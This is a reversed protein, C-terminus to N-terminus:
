PALYGAIQLTTTNTIVGLVCLDKDAPVVAIPVTSDMVLAASANGPAALRAVTATSPLISTTTTACNASGGSRVSNGFRLIFQGGTATTSQAVVDTIYRRLTNDAPANCGTILTLTAGIDDVSCTFPFGNPSQAHVPRQRVSPWCVALVVFAVVILSRRKM